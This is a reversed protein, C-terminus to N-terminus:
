EVRFNRVALTETNYVLELGTEQDVVSLGIANAIASAAATDWETVVDACGWGLDGASLRLAMAHALTQRGEPSLGPADSPWGGPSSRGNRKSTAPHHEIRAPPGEGTLVFGGQGVKGYYATDLNPVYVVGYIARGDEVLAITVTPLQRAHWSDSEWGLPDVLWVHNWAAREVYPTVEGGRALVPIQPALKQLARTALTRARGLARSETGGIGGALAGITRDLVQSLVSPRAAVTAERESRCRSGAPIAPKGCVQQVERGVERAAAVVKAIDIWRIQTVNAKPFPVLPVQKGLFPCLREWGEGATVDLILLDDSRDAFYEKVGDLFRTYGDLFKQKEYVDTGYLDLFLRRHAESQKEALRRTFQKECSALWGERDRVTLIFKSGPYRADLERFFSPIPTDTLADHADVAALDVSSLDGLVYRSIGLYDKTRYGLIELARALSSTGTKSLGIGFIKPAGLDM